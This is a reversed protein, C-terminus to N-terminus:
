EELTLRLKFWKDLMLPTLYVTGSTVSQRVGENAIIKKKKLLWSVKKCCGASTVQSRDRYHWIANITDAAAGLIIQFTIRLSYHDQDLFLRPKPVKHKLNLTFMSYKYRDDWSIKWCVSFCGTPNWSCTTCLPTQTIPSTSKNELFSVSLMKLLVLPQLVSFIFPSLPMSVHKCLM